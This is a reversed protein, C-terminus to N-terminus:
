KKTNYADLRAQASMRDAETEGNKAMLALYKKELKVDKMTRAMLISNKLATMDGPHKKLVQEYYKRAQKYEKRVLHYSGLNDIFLPEDKCYTLMHESLAKFAQASTESGLRFISVCYDQMLARFQEETVGDMGEYAWVPHEKYHKDALSKLEQLAMEPKDKEYAILADIRAMRYDLHWPELTIAKGIASNAQAFLDDDYDIVEYYNHKNGLSDTMPLLPAQGLYKDVTMDEIHSSQSRALCFRFRALYLQPDEPWAAEWKNLHTEVGLGAPGVRDVLNTYRRLFESQSLTEQASAAIPLVLALLLILTRKM